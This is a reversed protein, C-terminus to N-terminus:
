CVQGFSGAVLVLDVINIVGDNNLDAAANYGVQGITKGFTSGVTALDVIDVRCDGSVDGKFKQTFSFSSVVNNELRFEGSVKTTQSSIVYKGRSISVPDWAFTVTTQASPSLTVAGSGIFYGPSPAPGGIVNEGIDYLTNANTDYTVSEGIDWRNNFNSEVYGLGPDGILLAGASPSGSIAPEGADYAGNTNSDYAVAEGPDWRFNRTTDVFVIKSDGSLFVKATANVTFTESVTGLNSVTVNTQIRNTPSLSVGTYAFNRSVAESAVAPDHTRLVTLTFVLDKRVPVESYTGATTATINFTRPGVSSTPPSTVNMISALPFSGSSPTLSATAGPLVSGINTSLQVTDNAGNSLNATLTLLTFNGAEQTVSTSTAALTYSPKTPPKVELKLWASKTM